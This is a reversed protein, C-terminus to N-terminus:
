SSTRKLYTFPRALERAHRGAAPPATLAAASFRVRAKGSSRCSAASEGLEVLLLVNGYLSQPKAFKPDARLSRSACRAARRATM